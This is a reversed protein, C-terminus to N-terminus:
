YNTILVEVTKNKEKNNRQYSSNSYDCNLYHTNYKKSWEILIDNIKKNNNFVNSLAFKSGQLNIKDIFNLFEKEVDETWAKNYPADSILYPPDLYVFMNKDFKSADIDVFNKSMFFINLEKIKNAFEIFNKEMNPNFFRKGFPTNFDKRVGSPINFKREENFRIQNSFSASVLSYFYDWTKNGNNYFDRLNLYGQKNERTVKFEDQIEKIRNIMFMTDLNKMNELLDTVEYIYENYIYKNAKVNIFVNGGGGFLDVFTDIENPFLPLIQPLLKYKGGTYNLPSKILDEKVFNM